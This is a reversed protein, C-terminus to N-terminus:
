YKVSLRPLPPSTTIEGRVGKGIPYVLLHRCCVRSYKEGSSFSFEKFRWAGMTAESITLVADVSAGDANRKIYLVGAIIMEGRRVDETQIYVSPDRYVAPLRNRSSM